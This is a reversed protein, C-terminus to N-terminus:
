IVVFFSLSLTRTRAVLVLSRTM